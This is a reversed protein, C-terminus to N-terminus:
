FRKTTRRYASRFNRFVILIDDPYKAKLANLKKNFAACTPCQFDVFVEIKYKANPNGIQHAPNAGSQEEQASVKFICFLCILLCVTFSKAQWM